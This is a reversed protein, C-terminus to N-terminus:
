PPAACPAPSATSADLVERVITHRFELASNRAALLGLRVGIDLDELLRIPDTAVVAALVDIDVSAGLVAASMLTGAASGAEACRDLVAAQLSEPPEAHRHASALQTLFSRM